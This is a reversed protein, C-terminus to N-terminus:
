EGSPTRSQQRLDASHFQKGSFAFQFKM